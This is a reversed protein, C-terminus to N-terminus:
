FALFSWWPKEIKEIKGNEANVETKIPITIPILWLLKAERKGEVDYIAKEERVKLEIEKIEQWEKVITIQKTLDPMVNVFIEKKPTEVKLSSNEFKLTEKTLAVVGEVEMRIIKEKEDLEIKVSVEPKALISVQPPLAILNPKVEISIFPIEEVGKFEVPRDEILVPKETLPSIVISAETPLAVIPKSIKEETAVCDQPCSERTEPCPCGIALCVMEQCIGDGCLNKCGPPLSKIEEAKRIDIEIPKTAQTPIEEMRTKIAEIPIEIETQAFAPTLFLLAILGLIVFKAREGM